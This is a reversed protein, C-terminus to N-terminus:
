ALRPCGVGFTIAAVFLLLIVAMHGVDVVATATAMTLAAGTREFLFMM